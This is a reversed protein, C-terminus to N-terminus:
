LKGRRTREDATQEATLREIGSKAAAVEAGRATEDARAEETEAVSVLGQKVLQNMRAVKDQAQRWAAETAALRQTAEALAAKGARQAADIAQQEATIERQLQDVEGTLATVRAREQSTELKEREAEVELLVDGEKVERGLVLSTAVVRGVVS